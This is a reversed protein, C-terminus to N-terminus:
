ATEEAIRRGLAALGRRQLAKVAGPRKGVVRGIEEVTLDGVIRLLLVARQDPSLAAMLQRVRGAGLLALAEVEADPAAGAPEGPAARLEVPRRRARRRDDIYRHHAITLVWAKFAPRDGEFRHLDRVVHLFVEGTLDEADASGLGRLYGLVAPSFARYIESWAREAGGRAGTLLAAFSGDGSIPRTAAAPEPRGGRRVNHRAGQEASGCGLRAPAAAANSEV